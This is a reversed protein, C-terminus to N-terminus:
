IEGFIVRFQSPEALLIVDGHSARESKQGDPAIEAGGTVSYGLERLWAIAAEEIHSETIV